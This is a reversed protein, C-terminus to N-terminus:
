ALARRAMAIRRRAIRERELDADSIRRGKARDFKIVKLVLAEFETAARLETRSVGPAPPPRRPQNSPPFLDVLQLGIAGLVSDTTCGAFCHMLVRGDDGESISLSPGKDDHAPCRASYGKGAKKPRDLKALVNEIPSM